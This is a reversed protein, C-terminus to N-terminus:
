TWWGPRSYRKRVSFYLVPFIMEARFEQPLGPRKVVVEIRAADDDPEILSAPFHGFGCMCKCGQKLLARELGADIREEHAGGLGLGHLEEGVGVEREADGIEILEIGIRFHPKLLRSIMRPTQRSGADARM